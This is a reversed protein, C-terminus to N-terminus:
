AANDDGPLRLPPLVPKLSPRGTPQRDEAAGSEQGAGANGSWGQGGAPTPEQAPRTMVGGSSPASQIISSGSSLVSGACPVDGCPSTPVRMTVTRPVLRTTVHPVWKAVTHPEQVSRTETVMRCVKVPIQEVREEYEYRYSTM